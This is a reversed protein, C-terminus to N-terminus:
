LLVCGGFVGVFLFAMIVSVNAWPLVIKNDHAIRRQRAINFAFLIMLFFPIPEVASAISGIWFWYSPTGIYFYHHGTGVIGSILTMAIILYLWKDIHERDVGTVKILVFSLIAGMILEWVGEVWLHVVYWWFFKDLVLNEPVYFAFLFFVALGFLCFFIVKGPLSFLFRDRWYLNSFQSADNVSSM